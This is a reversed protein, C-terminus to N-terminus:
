IRSAGPMRDRPRSSGSRDHAVDRSFRGRDDPDGDAAPDSNCPRHGGARDGAPFSDCDERLSFKPHVYPHASLNPARGQSSHRYRPPGSRQAGDRGGIQGCGDGCMGVTHGTQQFAKVLKYKDELLVGAFVAFSQPEVQDPVGGPPCIPGTLGIEQAVIAATAPADGSVMVVRVGLGHLEKIFAASDARPPDSLAILGVVQLADASGAAVALVRLSQGELEATRAQAAPSAQSLSIVVASAGKVIRRSGGSPDTVSAESTKTSPDFPKFVVLKFGSDVTTHAIRAAADRIAKDGPDQSGEASALAALMLVHGKDFGPMPAVTSLANCTLTGTKDACLVDM